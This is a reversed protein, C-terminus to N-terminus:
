GRYFMDSAPVLAFCQGTCTLCNMLAFVDDRISSFVERHVFRFACSHCCAFSDNDFQDTGKENVKRLQATSM